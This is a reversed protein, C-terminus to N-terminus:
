IDLLLHKHRVKADDVSFTTKYLKMGITIEGLTYVKANVTINNINYGFSNESL